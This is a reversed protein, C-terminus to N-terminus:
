YAAEVEPGGDEHSWALIKVEGLPYGDRARNVYYTVDDGDIDIKVRPGIGLAERLQKDTLTASFNVDVSFSGCAPWTRYQDSAGPHRPVNNLTVEVQVWYDRTRTFVDNVEYGDRANGLVDYTRVECRAWVQLDTKVDHVIALM